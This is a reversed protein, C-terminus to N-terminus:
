PIGGAVQTSEKYRTSMIYYLTNTNVLAVMINRVTIVVIIFAIGILLDIV